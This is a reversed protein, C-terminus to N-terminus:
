NKYTTITGSAANTGIFALLLIGLGAYFPKLFLYEKGSKKCYSKSYNLSIYILSLWIIISWVAALPLSFFGNVTNIGAMPPYYYICYFIILFGFLIQLSYERKLLITLPMTAYKFNTLECVEIKEGESDYSFLNRVPSLLANELFRSIGETQDSGDYFLEKLIGIQKYVIM